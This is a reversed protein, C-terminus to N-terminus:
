VSLGKLADHLSDSDASSSPRPQFRGALIFGPLANPSQVRRRKLLPYPDLSM